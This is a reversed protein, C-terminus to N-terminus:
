ARLQLMTHYYKSIVGDAAFSSHNNWTCMRLQITMRSTSRFEQKGVDPTGGRGSLGGKRCKPVLDTLTVKGRLGSSASNTNVDHFNTQICTYYETKSYQMLKYRNCNHQLCKHFSTWCVFETIPSGKLIYNLKKICCFVIPLKCKCRLMKIGLIISQLM